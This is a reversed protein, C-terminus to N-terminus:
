RVRRLYISGGVGNLCLPMKEEMLPKLQLAAYSSFWYIEWASNYALFARLFYAENWYRGALLWEAPYVFPYLVDHIHVFVGPKLRPLVEFFLYQVDSGASVVHSSDLFLLDGPLLANFTELPVRQVRERLLCCKAEDGPKLLQTLREPNPEIFTMAPSPRLHGEATDLMVASSFGSGIEIIHKPRVHRLFCHLVIADSHVFMTQAFYYRCDAKKQEPFPRQNYFESFAEILSTHADNNINVEDPSTSGYKSSNLYQEVQIPSPVPSYYHGAPFAGEAKRLSAVEQGLERLRRRLRGVYPTRDLLGQVFPSM